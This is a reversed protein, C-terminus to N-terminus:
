GRIFWSFVRMHWRLTIKSSWTRLSEVFASGLERSSERRSIHMLKPSYIVFIPIFLEFGMGNTDPRTTFRLWSRSEIQGILGKRLAWDNNKSRTLGKRLAWLSDNNKSQTAKFTQLLKNSQKVSIETDGSVITRRLRKTILSGKNTPTKPAFNKPTLRYM